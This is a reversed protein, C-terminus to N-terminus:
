VVYLIFLPKFSVSAPHSQHPLSQPPHPPGRLAPGAPHAPIGPVPRCGPVGLRMLGELRTPTARGPSQHPLESVPMRCSMTVCIWANAHSELGARSGTRMQGGSTRPLALGGLFTPTVFGPPTPHPAAPTRPHAPRHNVPSWRKSSTLKSGTKLSWSHLAVGFHPSDPKELVETPATLATSLSPGAKSHLQM